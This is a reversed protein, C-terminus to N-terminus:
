ASRTPLQLQQPLKLRALQLAPSVAVWQHHALTKLSDNILLVEAMATAKDITMESYFVTSASSSGASLQAQQVLGAVSHRPEGHQETAPMSDTLMPKSQLGHALLAATPAVAVAMLTGAVIRVARGLPSEHRLREGHAETV